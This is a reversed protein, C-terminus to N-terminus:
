GAREPLPPRSSAPPAGGNIVKACRRFSEQRVEGSTGSHSSIMAGLASSPM